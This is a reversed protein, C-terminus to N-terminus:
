LFATVLTLEDGLRQGETSYLVVRRCPACPLCCQYASLYCSSVCLSLFLSFLSFGVPSQIWLQQPSPYFTVSLCNFLWLLGKKKYKSFFLFLVEEWPLFVRLTGFQAADRRDGMWGDMLRDMWGDMRATALAQESSRSSSSSSSPSLLLKFFFLCVVLCFVGLGVWFVFLFIIIYYFLINFFYFYFFFFCLKPFVWVEVLCQLQYLSVTVSGASVSSRDWLAVSTQFRLM